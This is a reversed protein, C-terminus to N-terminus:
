KKRYKEILADADLKAKSETPTSGDNVDRYKKGPEEKRLPVKLVGRELRNLVQDFKDLQKMGYEKNPTSPGPITATIAARLEDSGQGAGLVSRMAMANEKLQALSILYEQQTPGLTTGWASAMFQSMASTANRQKMVLAIQARQAPTFDPMKELAVKTNGITDRIDQILVTRQLAKDAQAGALYRGPEDKNAKSLETASIRIPRNDNKTDIVTSMRYTGYGEGRALGSEKAERIKREEWAKSAASDLKGGTLEPHDSAYGRYFTAFDNITNKSVPEKPKNVLFRDDRGQEVIEQLTQNSGQTGFISPKPTQQTAVPYGLDRLQTGFQSAMGENSGKVSEKYMDAIYKLRAKNTENKLDEARKAAEENLKLEELNLKDQKFKLEDQDQKRKFVLPIISQMIKNHQEFANRFM